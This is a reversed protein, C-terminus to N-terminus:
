NADNGSSASSAARGHTDGLKMLFTTLPTASDAAAGPQNVTVAAVAEILGGWDAGARGLGSLRQWISGSAGCRGFAPRELCWRDM